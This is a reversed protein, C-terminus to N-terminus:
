TIDTSDQEYNGFKNTFAEDIFRILKQTDIQFRADDQIYPFLIPDNVFSHVMIKLTKM